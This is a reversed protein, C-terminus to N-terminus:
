SGSGPDLPSPFRRNPVRSRNMLDTMKQVRNPNQKALDQQEGPDRALNYLEVVKSEGIKQEILKWPPQLLARRGGEELIEWYLSEHHRQGAEAKLSPAYSTGEIGSPTKLHALDCITPLFDWFAIPLSCTRGAPIGAPWRAILPVRIGGEYVDRKGGRFPANSQLLNFHYGGEKHSGNDSSFLVLTDSDLDAAKLKKIVEGVADDLREVTGAYSAKVEACPAYYQNGPFSVEDGVTARVRKLSDEPVSLAAHPNPYSLVLFFPKQKSQRGLFELAKRTYLDLDFVSGKAKTNGSLKIRKSNEYVFTPFRYHGDWHNTTGFFYEFGKQALVEPQQTDGTVCSKGVLATAYGAEKLLSAVTRDEPDPLLNFPGNGRISSHGTDHGTMLAARSPACLPAGAYQHTFRIGDRALGDINPTRFHRQGQCSLDGYGMDDALILVVNPRPESKAKAHLTKGGLVEVFLLCIITQSQFRCKRPFFLTMLM